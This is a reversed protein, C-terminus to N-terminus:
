VEGPRVFGSEYALVVAQLRGRLGLKRLIQAVHSRVTAEGVGAEGAIERNSLGRAMLLLVDRERETLADLGPPPKLVPRAVFSAIVRMTVAPDILGDGAAAVRIAEVLHEPPSSKLLFGNVGTRLARDLNEDSGFTTLMVIGPPTPDGLLTRAAELGDVVPMALDLLLVDPRESRALAVAENGDAAEGVVEIGDANEAVLRLGARIMVHDDAIVM